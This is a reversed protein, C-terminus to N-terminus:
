AGAYIWAKIGTGLCGHEKALGIWAGLSSSCVRGWGSSMLVIAGVLGSARQSVNGM